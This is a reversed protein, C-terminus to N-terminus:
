AKLDVIICQVLFMLIFVFCCFRAHTIEDVIIFFWVFAICVRLFHGSSCAVCQAIAPIPLFGLELTWKASVQADHQEV